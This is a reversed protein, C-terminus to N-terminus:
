LNLDVLIPLHTKGTGVAPLVVSRVATVGHRTLLDDLRVAPFEAPWTFGFGQGAASQASTLGLDQQLVTFERDTAAVNVDGVVILKPAHDASVIAALKRVASDRALAFGDDNLVPQPIHVVYAVLNGEPTAITVRLAGFDQQTMGDAVLGQGDGSPAASSITGLDIPTSDVIPYQSWVGFEYQTVHNAPYAADLKAAATSDALNSYVDQLAIVNAHQALALSGARSLEGPQGNVDVSFIRLQSPLGGGRPLLAPGYGALWVAAAAVSAVLARPKRVALASLLLVAIPIALWPLWSELLSAVGMSDPLYRHGILFLVILTCLVMVGTAIQQRPSPWPKHRPGPASQRRPVPGLDPPDGGDSALDGGDSALDGYALDDSAPDGSTLNGSASFGSLNSNTSFGSNPLTGFGSDAASGAAPDFLPDTVDGAAIGTTPAIGTIAAASRPALGVSGLETAEQGTRRQTPVVPPVGPAVGSPGVPPIVGLEDAKAYFPPNISEDRYRGVTM